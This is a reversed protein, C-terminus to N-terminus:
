MKDMKVSKSSNLNNVSNRLIYPLLDGTYALGEYKKGNLKSYIDKFVLSTRKVYNADLVKYSSSDKLM